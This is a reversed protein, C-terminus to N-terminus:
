ASRWRCAVLGPRHHAVNEVARAQRGVTAARKVGVNPTLWVAEIACTLAFSKETAVMRGAAEKGRARGTAAVSSEPRRGHCSGLRSTGRVTRRCGPAASERQKNEVEAGTALVILVCEKWGRGGAGGLGDSL